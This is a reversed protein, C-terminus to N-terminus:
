RSLRPVESRSTRDAGGWAGQPGQVRRPHGAAVRARYPDAARSGPLQGVFDAFTTNDYRIGLERQLLRAHLDFARRAETWNGEAIHAAILTRQGSERLPEVSVVGLAVDLAEAYRGAAVLAASLAEMAHLACQRARERELVVCEDYWGPLIELSDGSVTNVGFDAETVGGRLLRQSWASVVDVDLLLGPHVWLHQRDTRIVDIGTRRLRWVASRLNGAARDDGGVPWLTGAVVRRDVHGRRLAVYVLLRQSGEPIPVERGGLRLRPGAFLRLCDPKDGDNCANIVDDVWHGSM